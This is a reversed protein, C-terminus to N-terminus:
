GIVRVTVSWSDVTVTSALDSVLDFNLTISGAGATLTFVDVITNTNETTLNPLFLHPALVVYGATTNVLRAAYYNTSGSNTVKMNSVFEYVVGVSLPIVIGNSIGAGLYAANGRSATGTFTNFHRVNNPNPDLIITVANINTYGRSIINKIQSFESSM